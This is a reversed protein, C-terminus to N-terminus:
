HVVPLCFESPAVGQAWSCSCRTYFSLSNAYRGMLCLRRRPPPAPAPSRPTQEGPSMLLRPQVAPVEASFDRLLFM